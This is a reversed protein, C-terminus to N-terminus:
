PNPESGGSTGHQWRRHVQTRRMEIKECRWCLWGKPPNTLTANSCDTAACKTRKGPGDHVVIEAGEAKPREYGQPQETLIFDGHRLPHFTLWENKVHDPEESQCHHHCRQAWWRRLANFDSVNWVWMQGGTASLIAQGQRGPAHPIDVVEWSGEALDFVGSECRQKTKRDRAVCQLESIECPAIRLTGHYALVHRVEETEEPEPGSVEEETPQEIYPAFEGSEIRGRMRVALLQVVEQLDDPLDEHEVAPCVAPHPVRCFGSSNDGGPYAVGNNVHWRMSVPIRQAPFEPTLPIRLADYREFWEIPTDCYKCRAAASRRLLRTQNSQHLRM